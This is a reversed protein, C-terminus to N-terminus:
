LGPEILLVHAQPASLEALGMGVPLLVHAADGDPVHLQVLGPGGQGGSGDAGPLNAAGPGGPGGLASIAGASATSLDIQEAQLVWMGGSGGGGAGGVRNIGSTNERELIPKGNVSFAAPTLLWAPVSAGEEPAELEITVPFSEGSIFSKPAKWDIGVDGVLLPAAAITYLMTMM